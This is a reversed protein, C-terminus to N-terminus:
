ALAKILNRLGGICDRFCTLSHAISFVLALPNSIALLISVTMFKFYRKVILKVHELINKFGQLVTFSFVM